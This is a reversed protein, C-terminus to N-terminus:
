EGNRQEKKLPSGIGVTFHAANLIAKEKAAEAKKLKVHKEHEEQEKAKSKVAEVEAGSVWDPMGYLKVQRQKLDAYVHSYEAALPGAAVKFWDIEGGFGGGLGKKCLEFLNRSDFSVMASAAPYTDVSDILQPMQGAAQVDLIMRLRTSDYMKFCMGKNFIPGGNHALTFATDLMMEASISGQVFWNLVEAINAWPEGGFSGGFTGERFVQELGATYTGLEMDPPDSMFRDIADQSYLGKIDSLFSVFADGYCKTLEKYFYASGSTHRAERTCILLLYTFMRQGLDVGRENHLEVVDVAAGLPEDLGFRTRVDAMAHQLLYFQVAMEEPRVMAHQYSTTLEKMAKATSTARVRGMERKMCLPRALQHRLTNRPAMLSM